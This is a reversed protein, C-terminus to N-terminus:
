IARASDSSQFGRPMAEAQGEAQECVSQVRLEIGRESRAM